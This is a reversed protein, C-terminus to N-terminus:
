SSAREKAAQNLGLWIAEGAVTRYHQSAVHRLVWALLAAALRDRRGYRYM